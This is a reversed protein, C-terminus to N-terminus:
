RAPDSHVHSSYQEECHISESASMMAMIRTATIRFEADRDGGAGSSNGGIGVRRAQGIAREDVFKAAGHARPTRVGYVPARAQDLGDRALVGRGVALDRAGEQADAPADAPDITTDVISTSV